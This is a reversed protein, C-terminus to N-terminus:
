EDTNKKSKGNKAREKRKIQKFAIYKALEQVGLEFVKEQFCWDLDAILRIDDEVSGTVPHQETKEKWEKYVSKIM